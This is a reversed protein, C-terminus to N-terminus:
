GEPVKFMKEKSGLLKSVQNEDCPWYAASTKYTVTSSSAFSEAVLVIIPRPGRDFRLVVM